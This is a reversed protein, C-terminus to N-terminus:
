CTTLENGNYLYLVGMQSFGKQAIDLKCCWSSYGPKNEVSVVAHKDEFRGVSYLHTDLM